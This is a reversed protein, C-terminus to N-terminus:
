PTGELRAKWQVSYTLLVGTGREIGAYNSSWSTVLLWQLGTINLGEGNKRLSIWDEIEAGIAHARDEAAEAGEGSLRVLVHLDFTGTEDRINRGTKLAAPPTTGLTRGLYVKEARTSSFTYGYSVETNREKSTTGNFDSLGALHDKIGNIVAKRVAPAITHAVGM